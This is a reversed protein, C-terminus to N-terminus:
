DSTNGNTNKADIIIPAGAIPRADCQLLDEVIM